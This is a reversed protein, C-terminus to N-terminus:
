IYDDHKSLEGTQKPQSQRLIEELQQLIEGKQKDTYQPLIFDWNLRDGTPM